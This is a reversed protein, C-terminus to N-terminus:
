QLLSSVAEQRDQEARERAELQSQFTHMSYVNALAEPDPLCEWSADQQDEQENLVASVASLIALCRRKKGEKTKFELGRTYEPVCGGQEM